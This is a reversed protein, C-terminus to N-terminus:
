QITYLLPKYIIYMFCLLNMLKELAIITDVQYGQKDFIPNENYEYKYQGFPKNNHINNVAMYAYPHSKLSSPVYVGYRSLILALVPNTPPQLASNYSESNLFSKFFRDLTVIATTLEEPSHLSKM